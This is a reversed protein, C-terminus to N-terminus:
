RLHITTYPTRRLREVCAALGTVTLFKSIMPLCVFECGDTDRSPPTLTMSFSFTRHSKSSVVVVSGDPSSTEKEDFVAAMARSGPFTVAICSM